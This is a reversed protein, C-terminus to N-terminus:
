EIEHEHSEKVYVSEGQDVVVDSARSFRFLDIDIIM